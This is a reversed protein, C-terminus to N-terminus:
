DIKSISLQLRYNGYPLLEDLLANLEQQTGVRARLWYCGDGSIRHAEVIAASEKIYQQFEQHAGAAMFMTIFALLPGGLKEENLKLTFGEIIGQETLKQIRQAVAQGTMHVQEGIEKWQLRANSQLLRIIELDTADLM